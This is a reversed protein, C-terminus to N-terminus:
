LNNDLATRRQGLDPFYSKLVTLWSLALAGEMIEQIYANWFDKDDPNNKACARTVIRGLYYPNGGLHRLLLPPVNGEAEQANLLALVMSSAAESGLPPVPIRELGSVVAMEQLEAMNGTIVHPTKRHSM